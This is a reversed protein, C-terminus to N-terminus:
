RILEEALKTIDSVKINRISYDNHNIRKSDVKSNSEIIKNINTLWTNRYGPTPGFLTISPINLAWALHTPGTDAGIVLDVQSILSVLSDLSLKDIICVKSCILKIKEAISKENKSGWIIIFNADIKSALNAYYQYPYVKAEYSAGSILVINKMTKSIYPFEYKQSSYLFSKKHTITEQNFSFKLAKSILRMNREIVNEDYPSDIKKNYFISAIRERVSFRDFGLTIPSVILRSILASKFLGQMDIVLDYKGFHRVKKLENLFLFFSKKKKAKKINVVHVKNIDPHFEFLGKYDEEVIWDIEIEQNHKKIFQLVIMAHVIDGLASLKVIAIKMSVIKCSM